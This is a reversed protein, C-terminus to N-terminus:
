VVSKRDPGEYFTFDPCNERETISKEFTQNKEWDDLIQQAIAPLALQRYEPYVQRSM